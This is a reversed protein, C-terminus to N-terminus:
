LHVHNASHISTSRTRRGWHRLGWLGVSPHVHLHWSLAMSGRVTGTTDGSMRLRGCQMISRQTADRRFLCRRLIQMVGRHGNVCVCPGLRRGRTRSSMERTVQAMYERPECFLCRPLTRRTRTATRCTVAHSKVDVHLSRLSDMRHKWTFWVGFFYILYLSLKASSVYCRCILVRQSAPVAVWTAPM